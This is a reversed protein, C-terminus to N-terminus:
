TFQTEDTVEVGAKKLREGFGDFLIRLLERPQIEHKSEDIEIDTGRSAYFNGDDDDEAVITADITLIM